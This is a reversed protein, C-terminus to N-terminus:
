NARQYIKKFIPYLIPVALVTLLSTGFTGTIKVLASLFAPTLNLSGITMNILTYKFANMIIKSIAAVLGVLLIHSPRDDAKLGKEYVLHIMYCVLLAELITIWVEAAYGNLIDFLGLGISAAIAGKRAGFILVGIVVLANGLHIFQAGVPIRLFQVSVMILAAFLSIEISQRLHEKKM